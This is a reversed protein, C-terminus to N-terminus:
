VFAALLFALILSWYRATAELYGAYNERWDYPQPGEAAWISAPALGYFAALRWGVAAVFWNPDTTIRHVFYRTQAAHRDREIPYNSEWEAQLQTYGEWYRLGYFGIRPDNTIAMQEASQASGPTVRGDVVYNRVTWPAVGVLAFIVGFVVLHRFR